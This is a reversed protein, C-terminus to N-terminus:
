IILCNSSGTTGVEQVGPASAASEVKLDDDLDQIPILFARSYGKAGEEDTDGVFPTPLCAFAIEVLRCFDIRRPSNM